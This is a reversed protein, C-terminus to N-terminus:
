LRFTKNMFAGAGKVATTMLIMYLMSNLAQAFGDFHELIINESTFITIGGMIRGAIGMSLAIIVIEFVNGLFSRIWAYATGEIQQGGVLTPMGIPFTVVLLYLKIYRGYLTILILIGCVLAVFFYILGFMYFFLRSGIDVDTTYFPPPSTLIVQGSLASAMRFFTTIMPIGTVLLVNLVVLKIMAEVFLEMTLQEKLNSAAKFFGLIFFLNLCEVGISLAWPYLDHLVYQWTEASFDQPTSSLMGTCAAMLVKWIMDALAYFPSFLLNDSIFSSLWEPM